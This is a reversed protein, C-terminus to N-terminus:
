ITMERHLDTPDMDVELHEGSFKSAFLSLAFAEAVGSAGAKLLSACGRKELTLLWIDVTDILGRVSKPVKWLRSPVLLTSHGTYCMNKRQALAIMERKYQESIGHELLPARSNSLLAYRTANISIPNLADPAM